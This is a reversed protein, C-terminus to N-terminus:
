RGRHTPAARAPSRPRQRSEHGSVRTQLHHRARGLESLVLSRRDAVAAPDDPPLSRLEIRLTGGEPMADRANVCQSRRIVRLGPTEDKDIVVFRGNSVRAVWLRKMTTWRAM